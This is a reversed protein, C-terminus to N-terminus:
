KACAAPPLQASSARVPGTVVGYHASAAIRFFGATPSPRPKRPPPLAQIARTNILGFSSATSLECSHSLQWASSSFRKPRSRNLDVIPVFGGFIRRAADYRLTDKPPHIRPDAFLEPWAADRVAKSPWEVVAFVVTEDAKALVARKFDTQKGDPVNDGRAECVRLAGHEM